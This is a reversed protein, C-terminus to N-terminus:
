RRYPNLHARWLSFAYAGSLGLPYEPPAALDADLCQLFIRRLCSDM